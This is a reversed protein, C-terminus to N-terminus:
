LKTYTFAKIAFKPSIIRVIDDELVKNMLMSATGSLLSLPVGELKYETNDHYYNIIYNDIIKALEMRLPTIVQERIHEGNDDYKWESYPIDDHLKDSYFNPNQTILSDLSELFHIPKVDQSLNRKDIFKKVIFKLRSSDTNWLSQQEPEETQYANVIEEALYVDLKKASFCETLRRVLDKENRDIITKYSTLQKLGPANSYNAMVYNLANTMNMTVKNNNNIVKQQFHTNDKYIELMERMYKEEIERIKKEHEIKMNMVIKEYDSIVNKLYDVETIKCSKKHRYFSQHHVFSRKCKICTYNKEENQEHEGMTSADNIVCGHLVQPSVDQFDKNKDEQISKKINKSCNEKHKITNKHLNMNYKNNTKYNCPECNYNM